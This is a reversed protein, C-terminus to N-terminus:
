LMTYFDFCSLVSDDVAALSTSATGSVDHWLACAVYAAAAVNVAGMTLQFPSIEPQTATEIKSRLNAVVESVADAKDSALDVLPVRSLEDLCSQAEDLDCIESNACNTARAMWFISGEPLSEDTEDDMWVAGVSRASASRSSSLLAGLTTRPSASFASTTSLLVLSSLVIIQQPVM